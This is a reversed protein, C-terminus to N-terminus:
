WTTTITQSKYRGAMDTAQENHFNLQSKGLDEGCFSIGTLRPPPGEKELFLLYIFGAFGFLAGEIHTGLKILPTFAIREASFMKMGPHIVSYLGAREEFKRRGFAIHVLHESPRGPQASERGIPYGGEFTLNILTKLFWRELGPGDVSYKVVHWITPKMKRRVRGLERMKRIVDFAGAGADDIPSLLSNHRTCLIRATLSALGIKKPQDKCWPLGHAIVEEDVFLSDSVLHERSM